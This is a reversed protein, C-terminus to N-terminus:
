GYECLQRRSHGDQSGSSLLQSWHRHSGVSDEIHDEWVESKSLWSGCDHLLERYDIVRTDVYYVYLNHVCVSRLSEAVQPNFESSTQFLFVEFLLIIIGFRYTQIQYLSFKLFKKFILVNFCCCRFWPMMTNIHIVRTKQDTSNATSSVFNLTDGASYLCDVGPSCGLGRTLVSSFFADKCM